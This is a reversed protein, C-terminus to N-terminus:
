STMKLPMNKRTKKNVYKEIRILGISLELIKKSSITQFYKNMKMVNPKKELNKLEM